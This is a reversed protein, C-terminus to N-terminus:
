KIILQFMSQLVVLADDPCGRPWGNKGYATNMHLLTVRYLGAICCRIKLLKNTAVCAVVMDFDDLSPVLPIRGGVFEELRIAHVMGNKSMLEGSPGRNSKGRKKNKAEDLDDSHPIEKGAAMTPSEDWVLRFKKDGLGIQRSHKSSALVSQYIAEPDVAHVLRGNRRYTVMCANLDADWRTEVISTFDETRSALSVDHLPTEKLRPLNTPRTIVRGGGHMLGLANSPFVTADVDLLVFQCVKSVKDADGLLSRDIVTLKGKVGCCGPGITSIQKMEAGAFLYAVLKLIYSRDRMAFEGKFSGSYAHIGFSDRPPGEAPGTATTESYHESKILGLLELDDWTWSGFAERVTMHDTNVIPKLLGYYYGLIFVQLQVLYETETGEPTHRGEEAALAASVVKAVRNENLKWSTVLESLAECAQSSLGLLFHDALRFVATVIRATGEFELAMVPRVTSEPDAPTDGGVSLCLAASMNSHSASNMASIFIDRKRNNSGASGPWLSVAEEMNTLNIRMGRRKPRINPGVHSLRTNDFTVLLRSEDTSGGIQLTDIGISHLVWAFALIDSSATIFHKDFKGGDGAGILWLLFRALERSEADPAQGPMHVGELGLASWRDVAVQAITRTRAISSWAEINRKIDHVLYEYGDSDKCRDALIALIVRELCTQSTAALLGATILTMIWTFRDLTEKRLVEKAEHEALPLLHGNHFIILTKSWRRNLDATDVLGTRPIINEVDVLELLSRDIFRARLWTGVSRGAGALVAIDGVSLGVSALAKFPTPFTLSM